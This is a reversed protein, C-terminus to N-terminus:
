PPPKKESSKQPNQNEHSKKFGKLDLDGYSQVVYSVCLFPYRFLLYSITPFPDLSISKRTDLFAWFLYKATQDTKQITESFKGSFDIMKLLFNLTHKHSVFFFEQFTFFRATLNNKVIKQTHGSVKKVSFTPLFPTKSQSSSVPYPANWVLRTNFSALLVPSLAGFLYGLRPLFIPDM